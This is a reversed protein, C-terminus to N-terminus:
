NAIRYWIDGIFIRSYRTIKEPEFVKQEYIREVTIKRDRFRELAEGEPYVRVIFMNGVDVPIDRKTTTLYEPLIDNALAIYYYCGTRQENEKSVSINKWSRKKQLLAYEISHDYIKINKAVQFYIDNENECSREIVDATREFHGLTLFYSRGKSNRENTSTETRQSDRLESFWDVTSLTNGGAIVVIGLILFLTRYKVSVRKEEYWRLLYGFYLFPLIMFPLYFRPRDIKFALPIYLLFYTTFLLISWKLFRKKPEDKEKKLLLINAFFGLGAFMGGAIIMIKNPEVIGTLIRWFYKAFMHFDQYMNMLLGNSSSKSSIASFFLRTNEGSKLFESIFVPLYFIGISLLFFFITAISLTKKSDKWNWMIFLILVIPLGLFASFHLQSAIALSLGALIAFFIQKKKKEEDYWRLLAYSFLLTFFLVSNPNWAFRGYEIALFSVSIFLMLVLSIRYSFYRRSFFYFVPITVISFLLDPYALVTADVSQFIQTAIYQFDYFIPGLRLMTGGARPGLLPLSEIGTDYANSILIADRFADGKFSLWEEFHYTRFFIGICVVLIFIWTYLSVGKFVNIMVNEM